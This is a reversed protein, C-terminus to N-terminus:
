AMPGESARVPPKLYGRWLGCLFFGVFCVLARARLAVSAGEARSTTLQKLFALPRIRVVGSAVETTAPAQLLRVHLTTTDPWVLLPRGPRLHKVGILSLAHGSRDRFTLRYRM